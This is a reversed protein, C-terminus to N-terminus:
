SPELLIEVRDGLAQGATPVGSRDFAADLVDFQTLHKYITLKDVM